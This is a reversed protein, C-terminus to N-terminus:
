FYVRARILGGNGQSQGNATGEQGFNFNLYANIEVNQSFSYFLSPALTISNDSISYINILGLQLFDTVPHQVFSYIQDRSIAKQEATFLRMWDNLNYDRFDTKGLSNRYYELMLFTQFDFTYDLGVVLEYFNKSLEMNNFAYESWMGLGFIEGATSMGFLQREEPKGSFSMNSSDIQTYDSFQWVNNIVIFAYDFHSFRGKFQIMKSSNRWNDEPSYLATLTYKYKIPLDIRVANHGPQEYTPDLADKINFVDTPNWVYGTGLSIQQKGVMIDFYRFAFKLYANDLFNENRFSLVYSSEKGAPIEAAVNPALFDLINWDKKGHYTIYDFNAAFTVDDFYDSRLDVRLKNTYLQSFEQKIQSGLVQTEFYGFLEAPEQSFILAPVYLGIVLLSKKIKM